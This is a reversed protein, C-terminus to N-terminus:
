LERARRLSKEAHRCPDCRADAYRGLPPPCGREGYPLGGEHVQASQMPAWTAVDPSARSAVYATEEVTVGDSGIRPATETVLRHGDPPRAM